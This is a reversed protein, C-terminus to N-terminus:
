IGLTELILKMNSKIEEIDEKTAYTINTDDDINYNNELNNRTSTVIVKKNERDWKNSLLNNKNYIEETIEVLNDSIIENQSEQVGIIIDENDLMMYYKM